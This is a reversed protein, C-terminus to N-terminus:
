ACIHSPAFSETINGSSSSALQSTLHLDPPSFWDTVETHLLANHHLGDKYLFQSKNSLNIFFFSVFLSLPTKFLGLSDNIECKGLM